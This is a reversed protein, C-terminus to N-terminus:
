DVVDVRQIQQVMPEGLVLQLHRLVQELLDVVLRRLTQLRRVAGEVRVVLAL